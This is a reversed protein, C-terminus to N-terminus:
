NNVQFSCCWSAYLLLIYEVTSMGLSIFCQNIIANYAARYKQGHQLKTHEKHTAPEEDNLHKTSQPDKLQNFHRTYPCCETSVNKCTLLSCFAVNKAQLFRRQWYDRSNKNAFKDWKVM